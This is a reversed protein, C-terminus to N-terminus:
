EINIIVMWYDVEFEKEDDDLVEVEDKLEEFKEGVMIFEFEQSLESIGYVNIVCVCFKYEYDFLLDQVNFFISCCIVLENWMKNVLDWIEISYFQVVSGGDYLFGYWFLILLFSWIDFVCFIGVLFDLKDVVIFNVQVQRSGLKNEVLLIYCGCYEQCVVLIIFKSGNESNEVKM